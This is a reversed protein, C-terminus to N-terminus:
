GVLRAPQSRAWEDARAAIRVRRRAVRV